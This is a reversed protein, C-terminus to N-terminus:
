DTMAPLRLISSLSKMDKINKDLDKKARIQLESSIKLEQILPKVVKESQDKLKQMVEQVKKRSEKEHAEFKLKLM